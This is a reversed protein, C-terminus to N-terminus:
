IKLLISIKIYWLGNKFEFSILNSLIASFLKMYYNSSHLSQAGVEYNRGDFTVTKIRGGIHDSKEFVTIDVTEGFMDKLFFSCACGSIGGGIIAVKIKRDGDNINMESLKKETSVIGM